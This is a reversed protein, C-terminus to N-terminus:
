KKCSMVFGYMVIFVVIKVCRGRTENARDEIQQHRWLRNSIADCYRSLQSAFVHFTFDFENSISKIWPSTGPRDHLCYWDNCSSVWRVCKGSSCRERFSVSMSKHVPWTSHDHPLFITTCVLCRLCISIVILCMYLEGVRQFTVINKILPEFTCPSPEMWVPTSKFRKSYSNCHRWICAMFGGAISSNTFVQNPSDIFFNDSSGNSAMQSHICWHGTSKWWLPYSIRFTNRHESTVITSSVEGLSWAHAILIIM